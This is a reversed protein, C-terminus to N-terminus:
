WPNKCHLGQAAFEFDYAEGEHKLARGLRPRNAHRRAAPSHRGSETAAFQKRVV